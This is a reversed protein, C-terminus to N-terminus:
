SPEGRTNCRRYIAVAEERTMEPHELMIEGVVWSQRQAAFMKDRQEPTLKELAAKAKALLAALEPREPCPKSKSTQEAYM